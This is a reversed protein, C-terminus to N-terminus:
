EGRDLLSQDCVEVKRKFREPAGMWVAKEKATCEPDGRLHGTCGCGYCRRESMSSLCPREKMPIRLVNRRLNNESLHKALLTEVVGQSHVLELSHLERVAAENVQLLYNAMLRVLFLEKGQEYTSSSEQPCMNLIWEREAKSADEMRQMAKRMLFTSESTNQMLIRKVIEESIAAGARMEDVRVFFSQSLDRM